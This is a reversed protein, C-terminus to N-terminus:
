YREALDQAIETWATFREPHNECTHTDKLVMEIVCGTTVDLTHKIYERLRPADFTGVLYSPHPKWAFIYNNQLKNACREVDAWPSISIRRIHPITFVYDLKDTLDECCGYNTLGFPELLRKEYQLIFENHMEPSVLAMEQAEATAWIDCRRVHNPDHDPPPLEDTYGLSKTAITTGDNNLSLLNLQEYQEFLRRHGQELFTMAEHLMQPNEYMDIMVQELGRLGTYLAMLSFTPHSIGKLKVDLIDAFIDQAQELNTQSAKENYTVEPWKLKKLDAPTKIVPDFAWTGRQDPSPIREPELGWGTDSVVKGVTWNKEIVTDDRLREHYFIRKRLNLEMERGTRTECQLSSEPILEPWSGEPFVLIMPRVRQLRNHRRWMSRRQSMIPLSAIEAVRRALDRLLQKDKRTIAM